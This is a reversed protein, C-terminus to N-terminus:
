GVKQLVPKQVKLFSVVFIGLLILIGGLYEMGKPSEQLFIFALIITGIPEGILAISVFVAPLHGLAWNFISHGLLQPILGLLLLYWYTEPSYGTLTYGSIFTFILLFITSFLYVYFIYIVLPINSRVKRGAMMYGAAMWAGFLALFNGILTKLDLDIQLNQCVILTEKSLFCQNSLAVFSSGIIALILGIWISPNNKEKLLLPSFLAVWLPTTTVLVVSSAISTFELSTIWAAFHIALFLGSLAIFIFDQKRIQFLKRKYKIIAVPSIILTAILLRMSAIVLSPAQDQAFRILIAATSVALIGVFLGFLPYIKEKEM